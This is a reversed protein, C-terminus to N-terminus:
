ARTVLLVAVVFIAFVGCWGIAGIGEAVPWLDHPEDNRRAEAEM